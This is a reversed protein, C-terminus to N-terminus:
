FIVSMDLVHLGNNAPLMGIVFENWHLSKCAKYAIVM